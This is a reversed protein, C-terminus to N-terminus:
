FLKRVENKLFAIAVQTPSENKLTKQIINERLQEATEIQTNAVATRIIQSIANKATVIANWGTDSVYIQQALNHEFEQDISLILKHHYDIANNGSPNVRVLLKEPSIRELFLTLREYAQLQIPLSMSKNKKHLLFARRNEENDIHFKFFYLAVSGTVIAPITYSLLEIWKIADM